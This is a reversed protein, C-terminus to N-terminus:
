RQLDGNEEKGKEDLVQICSSPGLDPNKWQHLAWVVKKDPTVEIIQVVKDWDEKRLFGGWNCIVTNGNALRSVQHVTYLPFGPLDDKNVEWVIAGAPNVERVYAHQNGSILTNGNKLRVAAWASPAAVSWIPQWKADYEVVKGMNLHALLYTGAKTRRIHRFQGHVSKPDTPRATEVEQEMEVKGTKKNILMVKAPTGNQCLFVKDTGVPQASHCETGAPCQYSWVIKKAPTIEAAGTKFAYLLNGNSLLHIDSFESLVGQADKNPIAYQWVVRGKRVLSVTQSDKRTDWQGTYLFDHQALGKGPLVAPVPARAAPRPAPPAKVKVSDERIEIKRYYIEAGESQILLKGSRLSADTGENVVEGNMIHVCHGDRAIIELRNWEGTPKENDKKKIARTNKTSATRVGDIVVTVSDILWFDGCDGEQIQCEISRPWVKDDQVVYYLIGNDRVRNERPPYKKEGWKFEMVLHFNTYSQETVIYGFEKGSIRLWGNTVSFVTDPDNDKGKTKLFSHWGKLDRGNFLPKFDQALLSGSLALMIALSFFRSKNVQM